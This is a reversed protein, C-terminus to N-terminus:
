YRGVASIDVRKTSRATDPRIVLAEGRHGPRDEWLSKLLFKIDTQPNKIPTEYDREIIYCVHGSQIRKGEAQILVSDKM